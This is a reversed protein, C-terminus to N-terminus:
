SILAYYSSIESLKKINKKKLAAVGVIFIAQEKYTKSIHNLVHCIM